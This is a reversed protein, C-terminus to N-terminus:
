SQVRRKCRRLSDGGRQFCPVPNYDLAVDTGKLLIYEANITKEVMVRVLAFADDGFRLRALTRISAHTREARLLLVYAIAFEFGISVFHPM